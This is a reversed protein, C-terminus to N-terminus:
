KMAAAATPRTVVACDLPVVGPLVVVSMAVTVPGFGGGGPLAVGAGVPVTVKWSVRKSGFVRTQEGSCVGTVWITASCAAPGSVAVAVVVGTVRVAGPM